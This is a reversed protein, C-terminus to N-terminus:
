EARGHHSLKLIEKLVSNDANYEMLESVIGITTEKWITEPMSWVISLLEDVSKESLNQTAFPLNSKIPKPWGIMRDEQHLRLARVSILSVKKGKALAEYGMTSDITVVMSCRNIYQYTSGIGKRRLYEVKLSNDNLLDFFKMESAIDIPNSMAGAVALRAGNIECWNKVQKFVIEETQLFDYYSVKGGPLDIYESSSNDKKIFTSIYLVELDTNRNEKRVTNNRISGVPLIRSNLYEAYYAGINSNHVLTYDVKFKKETAFEKLFNDRLGNQIMVSTVKPCIDAIRYFLPNNDINTILYRPDVIDIYTKQYALLPNKLKILNRFSRLLVYLNVQENRTHLIEYTNLMPLCYQFTSTSEADYILYESTIPPRYIKQPVIFCKFTVIIM